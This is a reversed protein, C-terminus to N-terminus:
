YQKISPIGNRRYVLGKQYMQLFLWQEWRYYSPDCTAFERRWDIALGLRKLQDRMVGINQYTWQSPQTNNKIAANEAPLGFADWGMPQLVNKGQFRQYRAVVDPITYNRLHGVHLSGSPYPFMALCYFKEKNLDENAKFIEKEEWHAQIAQEVSQPQYDQEIM